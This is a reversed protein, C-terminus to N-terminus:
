YSGAAHEQALAGCLSGYRGDAYSVMWREQTDPDTAWNPGASAMKDGPLAQPLGYASSGGTNYQEPNWAPDEGHWGTSDGGIIADGCAAQVPGVLTVLYAEDCAKTGCDATHAQPEHRRWLRCASPTHHKWCEWHAVRVICPVRSGCHHAHHHSMHPVSFM